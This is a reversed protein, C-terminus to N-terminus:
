LRNTRTEHADLRTEHPPAFVATSALASASARPSTAGAQKAGLTRSGSKEVVVVQDAASPTVNLGPAAVNENGASQSWRTTM